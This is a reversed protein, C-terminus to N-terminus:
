AVKTPGVTLEAQRYWVELTRQGTKEV